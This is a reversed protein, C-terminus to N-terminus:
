YSRIHKRQSNASIIYHNFVNRNEAIGGDDFSVFIGFSLSYSFINKKKGIIATYGFGTMNEIM